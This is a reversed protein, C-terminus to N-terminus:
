RWARAALIKDTAFYCRAMVQITSVQTSVEPNEQYREEQVHRGSHPVLHASQLGSESADDNCIQCHEELGPRAM